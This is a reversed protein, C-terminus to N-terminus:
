FKTNRKIAKELALKEKTFRNIMDLCFAEMSELCEKYTDMKLLRHKDNVLSSSCEKQLENIAKEIETFEKSFGDETHDIINRLSTPGQDKLSIDKLDM